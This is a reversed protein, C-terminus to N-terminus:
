LKRAGEWKPPPQFNFDSIYQYLYLSPYDIYNFEQFFNITQLFFYKAEIWKGQFYLQIAQNWLSYFYPNQIFLLRIKQINKDKLFIDLSSVKRQQINEKFQKRQIKHLVKSKKILSSSLHSKDFKDFGYYNYLYLDITYINVKYKNLYIRDVIRMMKQCEKSLHTYMNASLLIQTGYQSNYQALNKSINVTKGLYLADIKYNSGITCQIAWGVHLGYYIQLKFKNYHQRIKKSDKIAMLTKIVSYIPLEYLSQNLQNKSSIKWVLLFSNGLNQNSEGSLSDTVTHVIQAINNIFFLVDQQLINIIKEFNYIQCQVFVGIFKKGPFFLNIDGTKSINKSIINSGTEGFSMVLLKGIKIILNELIATEFKQIEQSKKYDSKDKKNKLQELILTETEEIEIAQLPNQSIRYLKKMINSIPQLVYKEVDVSFSNAAYGLILSVFITRVIGLIANLESDITKDIIIFGALIGQNDYFTYYYIDEHRFKELEQDTEAENSNIPYKKCCQHTSQHFSIYKDFLIKTKDIQSKQYFDYICALSNDYSTIEEKYTEISFIPVTMIISLVLLIVRKYTLEQLKIGIKSQASIYDNRENNDNEKYQITQKNHIEETNLSQLKLSIYNMNKQKCVYSNQFYIYRFNTDIKEMQKKQKILKQIRNKLILKHVKAQFQTKPKQLKIIQQNKGINQQEEELKKLNQSQIQLAQQAHKYLKVLRVLRVIRVIRGAKTGVRSAKGAKSLQSSSSTSTASHNDFFYEVVWGIDLLLSITAVTDLYFFFSNFYNKQCISALIIETSFIIISIIYLIWFIEDKEKDTIFVRIDDGFLAYITFTTVLILVYFSELIEDMKHKIKQILYDKKQNKLNSFASLNQSPLQVIKKKQTFLNSIQKRFNNINQASYTQM